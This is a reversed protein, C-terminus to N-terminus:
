AAGMMLGTFGGDKQIIEIMKKRAAKWKPEYNYSVCLGWNGNIDAHDFWDPDYGKAWFDVSQWVADSDWGKEGVEIGEPDNQWVSGSGNTPRRHDNRYHEFLDSRTHSTFRCSGSHECIRIQDDPNFDHLNEPEGWQIM